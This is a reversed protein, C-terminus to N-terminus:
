KGFPWFKKKQVVPTSFQFEGDPSFSVKIAITDNKNFNKTDIQKSFWKGMSREGLLENKVSLSYGNKINVPLNTFKTTAYAQLGSKYSENYIGGLELSVDIPQNTNNTFMLNVALIPTILLSLLILFQKM